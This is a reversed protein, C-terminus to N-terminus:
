SVNKQCGHLLRVEMRLSMSNWWPVTLPKELLGSSAIIPLHARRYFRVQIERATITVNAPMDILDRFIKRAQCEAYGRMRQALRRCLGSAIVLLVM